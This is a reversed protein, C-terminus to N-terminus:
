RSVERRIRHESGTMALMIVLVAMVLMSVVAVDGGFFVLVL